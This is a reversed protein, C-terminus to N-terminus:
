FIWFLWVLRYTTVFKIWKLAEGVVIIIVVVVVIVIMIMVLANQTPALSFSVLCVRKKSGSSCRLISM